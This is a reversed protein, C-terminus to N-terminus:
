NRIKASHEQTRTVKHYGRTLNVGSFGEGVVLLNQQNSSFCLSVPLERNNPFHKRHGCMREREVSFSEGVLLGEDLFLGKGGDVSFNEVQGSSKDKDVYLGRGGLSPLGVDEM